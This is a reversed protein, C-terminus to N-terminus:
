GPQIRMNASFLVAHEQHNHCWWAALAAARWRHWSTRSVQCQWWPMAWFFLCRNQLSTGKCLSYVYAISAISIYVKCVNEKAAEVPSLAALNNAYTVEVMRDGLFLGVEILSVITGFRTTRMSTGAFPLTWSEDNFFSMRLDRVMSHTTWSDM